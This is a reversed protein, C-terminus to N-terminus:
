SKAESPSFISNMQYVTRPGSPYNLLPMGAVRLAESRQRFDGLWLATGTVFVSYVTHVRETNRQEITVTNAKTTNM